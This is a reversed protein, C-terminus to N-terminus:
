WYQCKGEREKRIKISRSGFLVSGYGNTGDDCVVTDAMCCIM